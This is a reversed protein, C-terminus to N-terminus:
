LVADAGKAGQPGGPGSAANWDILMGQIVAEPGLLDVSGPPLGLIRDVIAEEARVRGVIMRLAAEVDTEAAGHAAIM